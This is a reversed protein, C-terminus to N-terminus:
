VNAPNADSGAISPSGDAATYHTKGKGERGKRGEEQRGLREETEESRGGHQM